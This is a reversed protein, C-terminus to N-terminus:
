SRIGSESAGKRWLVSPLRGKLKFCNFSKMVLASTSTRPTPRSSLSQVAMGFPGSAATQKKAKAKRHVKAGSLMPRLRSSNSNSNKSKGAFASTTCAFSPRLSSSWFFVPLAILTARFHLTSFSSSNVGDFSTAPRKWSLLCAAPFGKFPSAKPLGKADIFRSLKARTSCVDPVVFFGFITGSVCALMALPAVHMADVTSNFGSCMHKFVIGSKWMWPSM